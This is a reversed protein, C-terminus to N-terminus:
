FVTLPYWKGCRSVGGNSSLPVPTPSMPTQCFPQYYGSTSLLTNHVVEQTACKGEVTHWGGNADQYTYTCPDGDAGGKVEKMERKTLTKFDKYKLIM